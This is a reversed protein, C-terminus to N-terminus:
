FNLSGRPTDGALADAVVREPLTCHIYKAIDAIRGAVAPHERLAHVTATVALDAAVAASLTAAMHIPEHSLEGMLVLGVVSTAPNVECWFDVAGFAIVHDNVMNVVAGGSEDLLIDALGEVNTDLVKTTDVGETLAILRLSARVAHAASM